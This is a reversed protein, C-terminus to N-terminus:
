YAAASTNSTSWETTRTPYPGLCRPSSAVREHRIPLKAAVALCSSIIVLLLTLRRETGGELAVCMM